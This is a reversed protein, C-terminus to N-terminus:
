RSLKKLINQCTSWPADPCSEAVSIRARKVYQETIAWRIHEDVMESVSRLRSYLTDVIQQDWPANGLAIAINRTWGEYGARRIPSGETNSLFEDESWNFLVLLQETELGHRPEFDSESTIAAYRNWPCVLQCDDCGFVRNGIARRLGEPISGRHEITLYSICRRADLQYPGIIAGTPCIDICAQCSGCHNTAAGRTVPLPIDTYIEGLFFWSGAHRNLLLTNKGIWGLGAKEAVAKELVPASDTFVRANFGTLHKDELWGFIRSQLTALRKRLVKHYDRGLAYRSVYGKKSDELTRTVNTNPLYDMRVSIIRITGPILEGPRSRRTGHRSMYEMGGQYGADLWRRLHQEHEHLDTDTIGVQQFGLERSWTKIHDALENYYPESM